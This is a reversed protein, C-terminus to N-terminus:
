KLTIKVKDVRNNSAKLVKYDAFEDSAEEGSVPFDDFLNIIHGAISDYNDSEIKIHLKENIDDLRTVGLVIYEKDSVRTIEDEENSDYEDRIEGVIEEVLDELTLLGTTSGYEDLVIAMPISNRKM